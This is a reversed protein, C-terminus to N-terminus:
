LRLPKPFPRDYKDDDYRWWQSLVRILKQHLVLHLSIGVEDQYRAFTYYHGNDIAGEHCIVAFLAYEYMEEPGSAVSAPGDVEAQMGFTTYSKMSLTTPFRIVDDVKSAPGAANGNKYEFRKFHFTLVPALKKISL